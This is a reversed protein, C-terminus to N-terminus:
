ECIFSGGLGSYYILDGDEDYASLGVKQSSGPCCDENRFINGGKGKKLCLGEGRILHSISYRSYRKVVALPSGWFFYFVIYSFAVFILVPVILKKNLKIKM